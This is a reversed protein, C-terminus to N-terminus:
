NARPLLSDLLLRTELHSGVVRRYSQTKSLLGVLPARGAPPMENLGEKNFRINDRQDTEGILPPGM